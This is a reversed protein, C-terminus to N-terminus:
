SGCRVILVDGGGRLVRQLKRRNQRECAIVDNKHDVVNALQAVRAELYDTAEDAVATTPVLALLAALTIIVRKM